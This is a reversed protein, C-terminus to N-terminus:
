CCDISLHLESFRKRSFDVPSDAPIEEALFQLRQRILSYVLGIM